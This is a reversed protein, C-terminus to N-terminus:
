QDPVPPIIERSLIEVIVVTQGFGQAGAADMQAHAVVMLQSGDADGAILPLQLDAVLVM